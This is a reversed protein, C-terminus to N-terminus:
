DQAWYAPLGSKTARVIELAARREQANLRAFAPTTDRGTLVEWLRRYIMGQAEAPLRDFAEGYILPSCPHKYMRRRLDLDRLSRGKADRPGMAAYAEAFGSTGTVPDKLLVEDAFLMYRVLPECVSRIRSLTSPRMEEKPRQDMGNMMANYEMAIRTQFAAATILNHMDTQHELVMLAVIDSHPSLFRDFDFRGKLDTVNAGGDLSASEADEGERVVLNGMHRMSGHTGTVYWGGWREEFPSDQNTRYTGASFVPEGSDRSFVSRVLHGPVHRTQGSAHCLTCKATQRRFEPRDAPKQDLTYFVTGLLPDTSSVELVEGDVCTGIYVEDNFFIARPRDPAIKSRQLSTKSFVLVQSSLSIKLQKLVAALYGHTPDWDLKVEGAHVRKQLQAIPDTPKSDRYNIPPQDYDDIASATGALAVCAIGLGIRFASAFQM